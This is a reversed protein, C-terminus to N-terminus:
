TPLYVVTNSDVSQRRIYYVDYKKERECVCVYVRVYWCMSCVADSNIFMSCLLISGNYSWRDDIIYTCLFSYMLSKYAFNIKRVHWGYKGGSRSDSRRLRCMLCCCSICLYLDVKSLLLANACCCHMVISSYRRVYLLRWEALKNDIISLLSPVCMLCSMITTFVSVYLGVTIRMGIYMYMHALYSYTRIHLSNGQNNIM